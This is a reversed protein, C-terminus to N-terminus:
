ASKRIKRAELKARMRKMAEPGDVVRGKRVDELGEEILKTIHRKAKEVLERPLLAEEDKSLGQYLWKEILRKHESEELLRLGDRVVESASRYRGSSVQSRVFQEQAEPLSVNM